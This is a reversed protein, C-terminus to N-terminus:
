GEDPYDEPPPVIDIVDSTQHVEHKDRWTEPRRNKLWFIMSTPDPPYHKITPVVLAKGNANFIKDEEHSYGLARKLLASEVQDDPTNKGAKLSHLFEKHRTRWNYFTKKTIGLKDAIQVDTMGARAMYEALLPHYNKNYKTPRGGPHKAM